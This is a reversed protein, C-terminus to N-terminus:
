KEKVVLYLYKSTYFTGRWDRLIEKYTRTTNGTPLKNVNENGIISDYVYFIKKKDDYGWLSIWHSILFRRIASYKGTWSYGNGVLLIVPQNKDLAKKLVDIKQKELFGNATYLKGKLGNMQLAKLMDKPLMLGTLRHKRPHYEKPHKNSNQGFASVVAKITYCGCYGFWQQLYQKPKKSLIHEIM